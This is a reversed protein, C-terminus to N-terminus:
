ERPLVCRPRSTAALETSPFRLLAARRVTDIQATTFARAKAIPRMLLSDRLDHNLALAHGMEHAVVLATAWSRRTISFLADGPQGSRFCAPLPIRRPESWPAGIVTRDAVFTERGSSTGTPRRVGRMEVGGRPPVRRVMYVDLSDTATTDDAVSVRLVISAQDFIRQVELMMARISDADRWLRSAGYHVVVPLLIPPLESAERSPRSGWVITDIPAHTACAACLSTLVVLSGRVCKM